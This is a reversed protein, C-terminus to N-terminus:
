LSHRGWRSFYGTHVHWHERIFNPEYTWLQVPAKKKKPLTVLYHSWFMISRFLLINKHCWRLGKLNRNYRWTNTKPPAPLPHYEVSWITTKEKGKFRPDEKWIIAATKTLLKLLSFYSNVGDHLLSNILSLSLSISHWFSPFTFM